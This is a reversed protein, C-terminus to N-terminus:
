RPTAARDCPRGGSDAVKYVVRRAEKALYHCTKRDANVATSLFIHAARGCRQLRSMLAANVGHRCMASTCRVLDNGLCQWQSVSTHRIMLVNILAEVM